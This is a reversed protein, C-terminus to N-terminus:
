PREFSVLGSPPVDLRVPSDGLRVRGNGIQRGRADRVTFELEDAAGPASLVIRDAPTANIVDIRDPLPEGDLEVVLDQYVAVICKETSCADLRPYNALPARPAFAGDLLVERNRRWYDTWFAVMERHDDPIDGLRVSLQPVSFLIALIQLAASEVPEEYHWMFMDSHVATEGALMRLDTVRVRNEVAANPTDGARLMNGYKRMLPGIYPQRFEIMVDPVMERLEIMIDTMLRDVAQNVSAFDRGDEATLVTEDNAVLFGLFDLKFGDIGWDAIARRYTDIIHERVEPYRPDLVWAGQEEWHRLYKGEFRPFVESQEGVLPLSYWLLVDVGLEHAADVFAKMDPMREPKWDGTFRYGRQSDLTQWGDDIIIADFGLEKGVRIEGLLAETSVSQHYSYWTSYMPLRARDPVPAPEFGPLGAWWDAVGALSRHLPVPRRDLRLDIEVAATPSRRESFLEVRVYVRADEERVGASLRVPDLAESVAATMRNGDDAGFLSVVPAHRTMTSDITSPYWDPGLSKNFQAGTTWVGHVDHSPFSFTLSLPPPEAPDPSTLRLTAIALGPEVESTEVDIAFSGLDGEAVVEIGTVEFTREPQQATLPSALALALLLATSTASPTVAAM